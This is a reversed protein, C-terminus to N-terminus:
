MKIEEHVIRWPLQAQPNHGKKLIKSPEQNRNETDEHLRCFGIGYVCDCVLLSIREFLIYQNEYLLNQIKLKKTKRRVIVYYRTLTLAGGLIM